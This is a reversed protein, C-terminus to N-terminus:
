RVILVMPLACRFCLAGMLTRGEAQLQARARALQAAADVACQAEDLQYFRVQYAPAVPVLEVTSSLELKLAAGVVRCSYFSITASFLYIARRCAIVSLVM